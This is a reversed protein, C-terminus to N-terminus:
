APGATLEAFLRNLVRKSKGWDFLQGPIHTTAEVRTGGDARCVAVILRGAFSWMDSPLAAELVCADPAQRVSQLTQRNRALSSLAAVLVLGPGRAIVESRRKGTQAGLSAYMEQWAAVNDRLMSPLHVVRGAWQLFEEASEESANPPQRALIARVEPHQVLVDLLLEDAWAPQSPSTV